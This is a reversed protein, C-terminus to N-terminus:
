AALADADVHQLFIASGARRSLESPCRDTQSHGLRGSEDSARQNLAVVLGRRVAPLAHIRQIAAQSESASRYNDPLVVTPGYTERARRLGAELSVPRCRPTGLAAVVPGPIFDNAESPVRPRPSSPEQM